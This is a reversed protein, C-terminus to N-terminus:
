KRKTELEIYEKAKAKRQRARVRCANGLILDALELVWQMPEIHERWARLYLNKEKKRRKKKSPEIM